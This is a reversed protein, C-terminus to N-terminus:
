QATGAAPPAKVMIGSIRSSIQEKVMLLFAGKLVVHVLQGGCGRYLGGEQFLQQALAVVGPRLPKESGMNLVLKNSDHETEEYQTEQDKSASLEEFMQISRQVSGKEVAARVPSKFELDSQRQTKKEDPHEKGPSYCRHKMDCPNNPLCSEPASNESEADSNSITSAGEFDLRKRNAATCVQTVPVANIPLSQQTVPTAEEAMQIAKVRILPYTVLTAIIKAASALLFAELAGIKSTGSTANTAQQQRRFNIILQKLRDYITYNIAPNVTLLLSPAVGKWLRFPNESFEKWLKCLLHSQRGTHVQYRTSLVDLPQTLIVNAIAALCGALLNKRVSLQGQLDEFRRKFASYFYFYIFNSTVANISKVPLGQLLAKGGNECTLDRLAALTRSGMMKRKSTEMEISGEKSTSSSQVRTKAVDIPYMAILAALAGAAGAIAENKLDAM